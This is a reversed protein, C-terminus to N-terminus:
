DAEEDEWRGTPCTESDFGTHWCRLESEQGIHGPMDWWECAYDCFGEEGPKATFEHIAQFAPMSKVAEELVDRGRVRYQHRALEHIREILKNAQKPTLKRM